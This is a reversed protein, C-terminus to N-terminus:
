LASLSRTRVFNGFQEGAIRNSTLDKHFLIFFMTLNCLYAFIPEIGFGESSCQHRCLYCVSFHHNPFSEPTKLLKVSFNHTLIPSVFYFFFYGM